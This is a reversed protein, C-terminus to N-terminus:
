SSGLDLDNKHPIPIYKALDDLTTRFKKRLVAIESHYHLVGTALCLYAQNEFPQGASVFEFAHGM